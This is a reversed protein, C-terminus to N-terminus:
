ELYKWEGTWSGETVMVVRGELLAGLERREAVLADV